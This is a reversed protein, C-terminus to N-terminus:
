DFSNYLEYSEQRDHIMIPQGGPFRADCSYLISGGAMWGVCGKDVPVLPVARKGWRGRDEIMVINEPLNDSDFEWNGDECVVYLEDYRESIGGNACKRYLKNSYVSASIAKIKM